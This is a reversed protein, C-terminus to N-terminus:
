KKVRWSGDPAQYKQGVPISGHDFPSSPAESSGGKGFLSFIPHEMQLKKEELSRGQQAINEESQQHSISAALQNKQEQLEAEKIRAQMKAGGYTGMLAMASEINAASMGNLAGKPYGLDEFLPAYSSQATKSLPSKPDMKDLSMGTQLQQLNAEGAGKLAGMQNQRNQQEEGEYQQQWGPNGARAVGMMLADAFGKLGSTAKSGFSNQRANLAQNLALQEQPGFQNAKMKGTNVYNSIEDPTVSAPMGPLQPSQAQTPAVQPPVNAQPAPAMAPKAIPIPPPPPTPVPAKQDSTGGMLTDMMEPQDDDGHIYGGTAANDGSHIHLAAMYANYKEPTTHGVVKGSDKKEVTIEDKGTKKSTYPM